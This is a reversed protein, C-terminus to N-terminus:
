IAEQITKLTEKILDGGTPDNQLAISIYISEVKNKADKFKKYVFQLADKPMKEARVALEEREKAELFDCSNIMKKLDEANREKTKTM